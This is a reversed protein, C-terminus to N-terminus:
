NGVYATIKNSDFKVQMLLDVFAERLSDSNRSINKQTRYNNLHEMLGRFLDGDRRRGIIQDVKSTLNKHNRRLFSSVKRQLNRRDKRNIGIGSRNSIQSPEWYNKLRGSALKGAQMLLGTKASFLSMFTAETLDNEWPHRWPNLKVMVHRDLEATYIALYDTAAAQCAPTLRSFGRTDTETLVKLIADYFLTPDAKSKLCKELENLYMIDSADNAKHLVTAGYSRGSKVDDRHAGSKYGYNYFYNKDDIIILTGAGSAMAIFHELAFINGKGRYTSRVLSLMTSPKFSKGSISRIYAELKKKSGGFAGLVRRVIKRDFNGLAQSVQSWSAVKYSQEYDEDLQAKIGTDKQILLQLYTKGRHNDLDITHSFKLPAPASYVIGISIVYLFSSLFLKSLLSGSFHKM